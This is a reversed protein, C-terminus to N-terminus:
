KRRIARDGSQKAIRISQVMGGALALLVMVAMMWPHTNFKSDLFGGLFYGGVACGGLVFGISGVMGLANLASQQSEQM